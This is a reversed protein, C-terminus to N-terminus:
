RQRTGREAVRLVKGRAATAPTDPTAPAPESPRYSEALITDHDAAMAAPWTATDSAASEAVFRYMPSHGGVQAALSRLGRRLVEAKPLALQDSLRALLASDASELYVQVPERVARSSTAHKSM